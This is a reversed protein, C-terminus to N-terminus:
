FLSTQGRDVFDINQKDECKPYQKGGERSTMYPLGRLWIWKAVVAQLRLISISGLYSRREM